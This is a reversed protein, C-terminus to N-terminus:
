WQRLRLVASPDGKARQWGSHLPQLHGRATLERAPLCIELKRLYMWSNGVRGKQRMRRCAWLVCLAGVAGGAGPRSDEGCVHKGRGSTPSTAGGREWSLGAVATRGTRLWQQRSPAAQCLRPFPVACVTMDKGSTFFSSLKIFASFHFNLHTKQFTDETEDPLPNM